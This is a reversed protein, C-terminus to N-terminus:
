VIVIIVVTVIVAVIIILLLGVGVAVGAVLATNSGPEEIAEMTETPVMITTSLLTTSTIM